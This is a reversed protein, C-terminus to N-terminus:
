SSFTVHIATEGTSIQKCNLVESGQNRVKGIKPEARHIFIGSTDFLFFHRIPPSEVEQRDLWEGYDNPGLADPM